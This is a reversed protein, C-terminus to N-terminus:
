PKSLNQKIDVIFRNINRQEIEDDIGLLHTELDEVVCEMFANLRENEVEIKQLKDLRQRAYEAHIKCSEKLQKIKKNLEDIQTANRVKRKLKRIARTLYNNPDGDKLLSTPFRKQNNKVTETM